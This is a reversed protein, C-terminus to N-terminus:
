QCTVPLGNAGIVQQSFGNSTAWQLGNECFTGNTVWVRPSSWDIRSVSIVTMTLIGLIMLVIVLEILTFGKM